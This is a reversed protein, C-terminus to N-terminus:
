RCAYMEVDAQGRTRICKVAQFEFFWVVKEGWGSIGARLAISFYLRFYSNVGHALQAEEGERKCQSEASCYIHLAM